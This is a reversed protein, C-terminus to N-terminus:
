LVWQLLEVDCMEVEYWGRRGFFYLGVYMRTEVCIGNKGWMKPIGFEESKM